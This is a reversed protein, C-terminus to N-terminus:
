DYAHVRHLAYQFLFHLFIKLSLKYDNYISEYENIFIIYM